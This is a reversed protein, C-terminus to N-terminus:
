RSGLKDLLQLDKAVGNGSLCTAVDPQCTRIGRLVMHGDGRMVGQSDSGQGRNKVTHCIVM